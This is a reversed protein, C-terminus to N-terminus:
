IGLLVRRRAQTFIGALKTSAALPLMVCAGHLGTLRHLAGEPAVVAVLPAVTRDGEHATRRALTPPADVAKRAARVKEVIVVQEGRPMRARVSASGIIRRQSDRPSSIQEPPARAPVPSSGPPSAM